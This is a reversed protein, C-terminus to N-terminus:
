EDIYNIRSNMYKKIEKRQVQEKRYAKYNDTKVLKQFVNDLKIDKDKEYKINVEETSSEYLFILEDNEILIENAREFMTLSVSIIFIVFMICIPLVISCEITLVGKDDM